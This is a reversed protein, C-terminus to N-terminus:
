VTGKVLLSKNKKGNEKETKIIQSGYNFRLDDFNKQKYNIRTKEKTGNFYWKRRSSSWLFGLNNLHEKIEYTKGELWLWTGIIEITLDKYKMLENIINIFDGANEFTKNQRNNGSKLRDFTQEYEKNIEQMKEVSGTQLNDPHFKSALKRYAKKLEEITEVSEFYKM